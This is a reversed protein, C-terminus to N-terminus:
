RLPMLWLGSSRTLKGMMSTSKLLSSVLWGGLKKSGRCSHGFVM